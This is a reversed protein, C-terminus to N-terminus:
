GCPKLQLREDACVQPTSCLQIPLPFSPGLGDDLFVVPSTEWSYGINTPRNNILEKLDQIQSKISKELNVNADLAMETKEKQLVAM